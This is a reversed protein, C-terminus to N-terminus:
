PFTAARGDRQARKAQVLVAHLSESGLGHLMLRFASNLTSLPVLPHRNNVLGLHSASGLIKAVYLAVTEDLQLSHSSRWFDADTLLLQYLPTYLEIATELDIVNWPRPKPLTVDFGKESIRGFDIQPPTELSRGQKRLQANLEIIFNFLNLDHQLFLNDNVAELDKPYLSPLDIKVGPVNSAIFALIESGIHFHRLILRNAEPSVFHKMGWYILRHLLKPSCFRKPVLIKM